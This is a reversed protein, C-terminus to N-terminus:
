RNLRQLRALGIYGHMQAYGWGGEAELQRGQQLHDQAERILAQRGPDAPANFEELRRELRGLVDATTAKQKALYNRKYDLALQQAETAKSIAYQALMGSDRFREEVFAQEARALEAAAETMLERSAAHEDYQSIDLAATRNVDRALEVTQWAERYGEYGPVDIVTRFGLEPGPEDPKKIGRDAGRASGQDSSASGGRVSLYRDNLFRQITRNPPAGPYAAYWTSTWEWVNGAMDCLGYANCGDPHANVPTTKRTGVNAKRKDFVNGWPWRLGNTGRAAKEWEQETPLRRGKWAAFATADMYDVGTVPHREKGPPIEGAESWYQPHRHGTADVFGMYDQNTVPYIDMFFPQLNVVHRPKEDNDNDYFENNNGMVFPGAPVLVMGPPPAISKSRRAAEEAAVGGVIFLLAAVVFSTHLTLRIM